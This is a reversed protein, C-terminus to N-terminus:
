LCSFLFSSPLFPHPPTPPSLDPPTQSVMDSIQTLTLGFKVTVTESANYVPRAATNYDQLVADMLKQEDVKVATVVCAPLLTLLVLPVNSWQRPGRPWPAPGKASRLLDSSSPPPPGSRAM